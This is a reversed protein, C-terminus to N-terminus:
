NYLSQRELETVHLDNTLHITQVFIIVNCLKRVLRYVVRKHLCKYINPIM